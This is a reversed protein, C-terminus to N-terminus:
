ICGANRLIPVESVQEGIIRQSLAYKLLGITSNRGIKEKMERKIKEISRVSLFVEQAIQKNSKEEWLLQIIRKERESLDAVAAKQGGKASIQRSFYLADTFLRSPYLRNGAVTNIARVLEEPEEKKSIYAHVGQDLFDAIVPLDVCSSLLIIKVEPLKRRIDGITGGEVRGPFLIDTVVIDCYPVKTYNFFEPIGTLDAVVKFGEQDMLYNKLVKRFIKHSDVIALNVQM